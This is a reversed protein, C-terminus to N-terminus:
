ENKNPWNNIIDSNRKMFKRVKWTQNTKDLLSSTKNILLDNPEELIFKAKELDGESIFAYGLIILMPNTFYIYEPSEFDVNVFGIEDEIVSDVLINVKEIQLPNEQDLDSFAAEILAREKKKEIIIKLIEVLSYEIEIEDHNQIILFPIKQETIIKEIEANTFEIKNM